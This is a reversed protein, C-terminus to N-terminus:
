KRLTPVPDARCFTEEFVEVPVNEKRSPLNADWNATSLIMATYSGSELPESFALSFASQFDGSCGAEEDELLTM